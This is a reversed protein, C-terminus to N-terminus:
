KSQIATPTLGTSELFARLSAAKSSARNVVEKLSALDSDDIALHFGEIRNERYYSVQLSHVVVASVPPRTPDEGFIPRVDTVIRCSHYIREDAMSVDMAKATLTLTPSGLLKALRDVFKANEAGADSIGDAAGVGRAVEEALYSHSTRFVNLSLLADLLSSRTASDFEPVENSLSALLASRTAVPPQLELASVMRGTAEDSLDRLARLSDLFRAPVRIEPVQSL